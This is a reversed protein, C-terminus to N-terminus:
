QKKQARELELIRREQQMILTTLAHLLKKNNIEYKKQTKEEVEPVELKQFLQCLNSKDENILEVLHTPLDPTEFLGNLYEEPSAHTKLKKFSNNFEKASSPGNKSEHFVARIYLDEANRKANDRISKETFSEKMVNVMFDECLDSVKEIFKLYVDNPYKNVLLEIKKSFNPINKIAWQNYSLVAGSYTKSFINFQEYASKLWSLHERLYCAIVVEHGRSKLVDIIPILRYSYKLLIENSWILKDVEAMESSLVLIDTVQKVFEEEKLRQLLYAKTKDQWEFKRIPAQELCLGLFNHHSTYLMNQITTTGTKAAGIHFIFKMVEGGSAM